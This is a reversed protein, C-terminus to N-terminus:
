SSVKKGNGRKNKKMRKRAALEPATIAEISRKARRDARQQQVQRKAETYKRLYESTGLAKDYISLVEHALNRLDEQANEMELQDIMVFLSRIIESTLGMYSEKPLIKPITSLVQLCGTKGGKLDDSSIDSRILLCIKTVLKELESQTIKPIIYVLIKVSEKADSPSLKPAGLQRVVKRGIRCLLEQDYEKSTLLEQICRTARARVWPHPFLLVGEILAIDGVNTGLSLYVLQWDIPESTYDKNSKDASSLIVTSVQEIAKVLGGADNDKLGELLMPAIELGGRVLMSGKSKQNSSLWTKCYEVMQLKTELSASKILERLLDASKLRCEPEPDSVLVLVLNAYFQIFASELQDVRVKELLLRVMEMASLRGSSSAYRFNAALSALHRDLRTQGLPYSSIFQLYAARSNNRIHDSQNQVLVESLRDAFSYVQPLMVKKGFVARAFSMAANQREPEDLDPQLHELLFIIAEVPVDYEPIRLLVTILKIASQCLPSATNPSTEILEFTREGLKQLVEGLDAPVRLSTIALRLGAIQVDEHSSQIARLMIPALGKVNAPTLLGKGSGASGGVTSTLVSRLLNLSFSQLLHLNGYERIKPAQLKLKVTFFQESELKAQQRAALTGSIPQKSSEAEADEVGNVEQECKTYITYGLVVAEQTQFRVNRNLGVAIHNMLQEGKHELRTSLKHSSLYERVPGTLFGLKGLSVNSAIIEATDYSKHQKVEKADTLYNENDKEEGASGFIDDLVTAFAVEASEDLDGPQLIDNSKLIALLYHVTYGLIHRQLGGRSLASRMEYFVFRLYKVPLLRVVRGLTQRAIDRMEPQKARLLQCITTLKGPLSQELEEPSLAILFHVMAVALPIRDPLDEHENARRTLLEQVPNVFSMIDAKEMSGDKPVAEAISALIRVSRRTEVKDQSNKINRIWRKVISRYQGISVRRLLETLTRLSDDALNNLDGNKSGSLLCLNEILPILYKVPEEDLTPALKGLRQVARRRRHIQVHVVNIFFDAEEDGKFLLPELALVRSRALQGLISVYLNRFKDDPERLGRLLLPLVIEHILSSDPNQEIFKCVAYRGNNRLALEEPDKMFFLMCYLLPIWEHETLVPEGKVNETIREFADSRRGFDPEGLRTDDYSNLEALLEATRHFKEGGLIVSISKYCEVLRERAERAVFVRFLPALQHYALEETEQPCDKNALLKALADLISSKVNLPVLRSPQQLLKLSVKSLDGVSESELFNSLGSVCQVSFNLTDPTLERDLQAPLLKLLLTAGSIPEQANVPWNTALNLMLQIITQLVPEKISINELCSVAAEVFVKPVFQVLEPEAAVAVFFKLVTSPTEKNQQAFNDLKPIMLKNLTPFLPEWVAESPISSLMETLSKAALQRIVRDEHNGSDAALIPFIGETCILSVVPKADAQLIHVSDYILSLYGILQRNGGREESPVNDDDDVDDGAAATNDKLDHVRELHEHALEFFLPICEPFSHLSNIAASRFNRKGGGVARGYLIRVLFPRIDDADDSHLTTEGDSSLQILQDSFQSNDLLAMMQERYKRLTTFSNITLLCKLALKQLPTHRSALFFLYKDQVEAFLEFKHPKTFKSFLNLIIETRKYDSETANLLLSVLKNALNKEAIKPIACLVNMGLFFIDEYLVPEILKRCRRKLGDQPSIVDNIVSNHIEEISQLNTCNLDWSLPGNKKSFDTFSDLGPESSNENTEPNVFRFAFDCVDQASSEALVAINEVTATSVPQLRSTLMGFFFAVISRRLKDSSAHRLALQRLRNNIDRAYQLELPLENILLCQQLLDHEDISMICRLAATRLKRDCSYLCEELKPSSFVLDGYPVLTELLEVTFPLKDVLLKAFTKPRGAIEFLQAAVMSMVKQDETNLSLVENLLTEAENTNMSSNFKLSCWLNFLEIPHEINVGKSAKNKIGTDVYILTNMWSGLDPLKSSFTQLIQPNQSNVLELYLGLANNSPSNNLVKGMYKHISGLDAFSTLSCAALAWASDPTENIDTTELFTRFLIDFDPVRDGKRLGALVFFIIPEKGGYKIAVDFIPGSTEARVHHLIDVLIMAALEACDKELSVRLYVDLMDTAKSHLTINPGKLTGSLLQSAASLQQQTHKSESEMISDVIYSVIQVLSDGKCKRILFAMSEAAFRLVFGRQKSGGFIPLLVRYTPVLNTCLLRSLYKFLYALSNFANEVIFVKSDDRQFTEILYLCIKLSREYYPEFDSGLDRALNVLLDLLPEVSHEDTELCASELMDFIKDSNYIIMPLSLSLPACKQAFTTYKAALNIENWRDLANKFFSDADSDVANRKGESRRIPDIRISAVRDTFSVYTHEKAM